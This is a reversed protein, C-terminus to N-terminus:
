NIGKIKVAIVEDNELWMSVYSGSNIESLEAPTANGDGTGSAKHIPTGVPIILTKSETEVSEMEQQRLAQREEQSLAQREAKQAAQEEESLVERLEHAVVVENGEISRVVGNIDAPRTPLESTASEDVVSTTSTPQKASCASLSLSAVISIAVISSKYKM